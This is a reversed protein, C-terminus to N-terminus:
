AFIHGFCLSLFKCSRSVTGIQFPVSILDEEVELVEECVTCDATRCLGYANRDSTVGKRGLITGRSSAVISDSCFEDRSVCGRWVGRRLSDCTADPVEDNQERRLFCYGGLIRHFFSLLRRAPFSAMRGSVSGRRAMRIRYSTPTSVAVCGSSGVHHFRRHYRAGWLSDRGLFDSPLSTSRRPASEGRSNRACEREDFSDTRRPGPRENRITWAERKLWDSGVAGSTVLVSFTVFANTKPGSQPQFHRLSVRAM